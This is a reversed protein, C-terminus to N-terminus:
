ATAEKPRKNIIYSTLETAAAAVAHTPGVAGGGGGGAAIGAGGLSASSGGHMSGGSAGNSHGAGISSNVPGISSSSMNMPGGNTSNSGNNNISSSLMIISDKLGVSGVAHSDAIPSSGGRKKAALAKSQQQKLHEWEIRLLNWLARRFVELFQTCLVFSDGSPFLGHYFRLTWSFRLISDALVILASMLIGFRLKPRMLHHCVSLSNSSNLSSSSTPVALSSASSTVKCVASPNQLLGWDMVVDWYLAYLANIVLLLILLPELKVSAAASVTKQYASVLLPFISTSYKVANALHSFRNHQNTLRGIQYMVMCQRARIVFPVAAFASPIVINLPSPPVPRPYHAAMHLLMGWDFFVKSLSCMADAFFVDVFPIPRPLVIPQQQQAGGFHPNNNNATTTDLVVCNCRPNVLEFSRQLVIVVAKRLWKTSPIPLVVATTVAGYFAFVAMLPSKGLVDIWFGYTAHLLVLLSLSFIVLRGWTISSPDAAAASGNITTAANPAPSMLFAEQEDYEYYDDKNHDDNNNYMDDDSHYDGAAISTNVAATSSAAASPAATSTLPLVSAGGASGKSNDLSSARHHPHRNSPHQQHQQQHQHQHHNNNMGGGGGGGGGSSYYLEEAQRKEEDLDHRLVKVHDIGFLRFFYVNMGWLGISAILVTPSRLMAHAPGSGAGFIEGVEQTSSM